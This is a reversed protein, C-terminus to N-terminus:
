RAGSNSPVPTRKSGTVTRWGKLNCVTLKLWDLAHREPGANRGFVLWLLVQLGIQIVAGALCLTALQLVLYAPSDPAPWIEAIMRVGLAMGSSATVTRWAVRPFDSFPMQLLDLLGTWCLFFNVIGTLLIALLAGIVGYGIGLGIIAAVRVLQMLALIGAYRAQAHKVLYLHYTFYRLNEFMAALAAVAILPTAGAWKPGLCLAAVSDATVALGVTLPLMLLLVIGFGDVAQQRLADTDHAVKAYGAYMPRRIPAAIESGPLHGIESSVQYLGLTTAGFLRSILLIACYNEMVSLLNGAILWKSFHFLPRWASLSFRPRYPALYYGLPVVIISTGLQTIVLAWYNGIFVAAPIVLMLGFIKSYANLLFVRDFRLDRQWNVLTVNEFGQLLPVLALLYMVETIRPERIISAMLPALAATILSIVAGRLVNLTWVTDFQRRDLCKTQVLALDFSFGSLNELIGAAIGAMAVIGFDDPTLLRVLALTGGLGILRITIRGLIMWAAGSAVRHGVRDEPLTPIDVTAQEPPSAYQTVVTSEVLATTKM